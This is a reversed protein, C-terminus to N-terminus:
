YNEEVNGIIPDSTARRENVTDIRELNANMTALSHVFREIRRTFYPKFNNLALCIRVKLTPEFQHM